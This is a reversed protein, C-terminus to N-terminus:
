KPFNLYTEEGFAEKAVSDYAKAAEIEDNFYGIHKFKGNIVIRARWKNKGKQWGVGKYKSSHKSPPLTHTKVNIKYNSNSQKTHTVSAIESKPAFIKYAINLATSKRINSKNKIPANIWIVELTETDVLLLVDFASDKYSNEQGKKSLDAVKAGEKEYFAKVQVKKIKQEAELLFDIDGDSITYQYCRYNNCLMVGMAIFEAGTGKFRSNNASM